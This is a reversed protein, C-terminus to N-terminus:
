STLDHEYRRNLVPKLKMYLRFMQIKKKVNGLLVETYVSHGRFFYGGLCHTISIDFIDQFFNHASTKSYM